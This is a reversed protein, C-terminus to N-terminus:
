RLAIAALLRATPRRAPPRRRAMVAPRHRQRAPAAPPSVAHAGRTWSLARATALSALPLLPLWVALARDLGPLSVAAVAGVFVAGALVQEVTRLANAASAPDSEAIRIM